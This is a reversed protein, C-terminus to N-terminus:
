VVLKSKCYMESSVADYVALKGPSMNEM